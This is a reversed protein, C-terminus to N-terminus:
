MLFRSRWHPSHIYPVPTGQVKTTFDIVDELLDYKVAVDSAAACKSYHEIIKIKVEPKKDGEVIMDGIACFSSAPGACPAHLIASEQAIGM